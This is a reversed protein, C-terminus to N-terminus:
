TGQSSTELGFLFPGFAFVCETGQTVVGLGCSPVKCVCLVDTCALRMILLSRLSPVAVDSLGCPPLLGYFHCLFVDSLGCSPLLSYVCCALQLLLMLM